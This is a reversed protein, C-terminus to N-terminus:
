GAECEGSLAGILVFVLLLGTGMAVEGLFLLEGELARILLGRAPGHFQRIRVSCDVPILVLDVGAQGVLGALPILITYPKSSGYFFSLSFGWLPHPLLHPFNQMPDALGTGFRIHLHHWGDAGLGLILSEELILCTVGGPRGGLKRILLGFADVALSSGFHFFSHVEKHSRLFRAPSEHCAAVLQLNALLHLSARSYISRFSRM